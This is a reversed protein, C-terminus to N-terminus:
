KVAGEGTGRQSSQVVSLTLVVYADGVLHLRLLETVWLPPPPLDLGEEPVYEFGPLEQQTHKEGM